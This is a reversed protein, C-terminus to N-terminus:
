LRRGSRRLGMSELYRVYRRGGAVLLESATRERGKSWIGRDNQSLKMRGVSTMIDVDRAVFNIVQETLLDEVSMTVGDNMFEVGYIGMRSISGYENAFLVTLDMPPLQDPILTSVETDAGMEGATRADGMARILPALAHENFLTFIMSGGITRPGRTYGKVYGQGLARVGMKERHSQVSITQLTALTLTNTAADDMEKIHDIRRQLGDKIFQHEAKMAFAVRIMREYGAASFGHRNFIGLVIPVALDKAPSDTGDAAGRIYLGAVTLFHRKLDEYSSRIVADVDLPNMNNIINECAAVVEVSTDVEEKLAAIQVDKDVRGYLHAVVKIDSGSFSSGVWKIESHKDQEVPLNDKERHYEQRILAPFSDEQLLVEGPQFQQAEVAALDPPGSDSKVNIPRDGPM